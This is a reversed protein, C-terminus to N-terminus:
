ARTVVSGNRLRELADNVVRVRNSYTVTSQELKGTAVISSFLGLVGVVLVTVSLMVEVLSFGAEDRRPARTSAHQTNNRPHKM